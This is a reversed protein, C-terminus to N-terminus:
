AKEILNRFNNCLELSPDSLTSEPPLTATRVTQGGVAAAAQQKQLAMSNYLATSAIVIRETQGGTQRHTVTTGQALIDFMDFM